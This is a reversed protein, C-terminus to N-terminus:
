ARKRVRAGLLYNRSAVQVYELVLEDQCGVGIEDQLDCIIERHSNPVVGRPARQHIDYLVEVRAFTAGCPVGRRGHWFSLRYSEHGHRCIWLLAGPRSQHTSSTLVARDTHPVSILAVQVRQCVALMCNGICAHGATTTVHRRIGPEDNYSVRAPLESDPICARHQADEFVAVAFPCDRYHTKRAVALKENDTGVFFREVAVSHTVIVPVHALVVLSM